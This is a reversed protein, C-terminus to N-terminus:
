PSAKSLYQLWEEPVGQRTRLMKMAATTLPIALIDYDKPVKPTKILTMKVEELTKQGKRSNCKACATVLNEWKWEGGRSIPLVHDITLNEQSSCYQCTYNDRYFVSKRSLNHKVRRRKVVQLLHPVRLVAPVFFSGRPSSVTQDYYELVEAKEMFELCIARKWGVVNVPRYSIDLVLGRFCSLEDREYEEEEELVVDEEEDDDDDDLLDEARLNRSKKGVSYVKVDGPLRFRAGKATKEQLRRWGSVRLMLPDRSECGFSAMDGNTSMRFGGHAALRAM